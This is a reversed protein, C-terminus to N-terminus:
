KDVPTEVNMTEVQGKFKANLELRCLFGWM